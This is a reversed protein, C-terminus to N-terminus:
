EFILVRMCVRNHRVSLERKASSCLYTVSHMTKVTCTEEDETFDEKEKSGEESEVDEERKELSFTFSTMELLLLSRSYTMTSFSSFPLFPVMSKMHWFHIDEVKEHQQLIARRLVHPSFLEQRSKVVEQIRDQFLQSTLYSSEFHRSKYMSIVSSKVVINGISSVKDYKESASTVRDYPNKGQFLDIKESDIRQKRRRSFQRSLSDRDLSFSM